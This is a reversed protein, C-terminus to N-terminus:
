LTLDSACCVIDDMSRHVVHGAADEYYELVERLGKDPLVLPPGVVGM